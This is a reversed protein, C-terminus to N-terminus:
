RRIGDPHQHWRLTNSATFIARANATTMRVWVPYPYINYKEFEQMQLGVIKASEGVVNTLSNCKRISVTDGIKM